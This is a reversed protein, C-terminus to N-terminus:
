DHLGVQKSGGIKAKLNSKNGKNTIMSYCKSMHIEYRKCM